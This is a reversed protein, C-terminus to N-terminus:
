GATTKGIHNSSNSALIVQIISLVLIAIPGFIKLVYKIPTFVLVFLFTFVDFHFSLAFFWGVTMAILLVTFLQLVNANNDAINKDIRNNNNYVVNSSNDIIYKSVMNNYNFIKSNLSFTIIWTVIILGFFLYWGINTVTLSTQFFLLTFLELIILAMPASLIAFVFTILIYIITMNSGAPFYFFLLLFSLLFTVILILSVPMPSFLFSLTNLGTFSQLLSHIGYLTPIILICILLSLFFSLLGFLNISSYADPTFTNPLYRIYVTLKDVPTPNPKHDEGYLIYVGNQILPSTTKPLSTSPNGNKDLIYDSKNINKESPPTSLVRLDVFIFFIILFGIAFLIFMKLISPIQIMVIVSHWWTDFDNAKEYFFTLWWYVNSGMTSIPKVNVGSAIMEKEITVEDYFYTSICGIMLVITTTFLVYIYQNNALISPSVVVMRKAEIDAPSLEANYDKARGQAVNNTLITMLLSVFELIIGVFVCILIYYKTNKPPYEIVSSFWSLPFIFTICLSVILAIFQINLVDTSYGSPDSSYSSPILYSFCISFIIICTVFVATGIDLHSWQQKASTDINTKPAIKELTKEIFSPFRLQINTNKEENEM